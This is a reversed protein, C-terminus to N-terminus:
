CGASYMRTEQALQTTSLAGAQTELMVVGSRIPIGDVIRYAGPPPNGEGHVGSASSTSSTGSATTSTTATDTSTTTTNTATTTAVPTTTSRPTATSVPSQWQVSVGRTALEPLATAVTTGILGSCHLLEGPAFASNTSEYAEGPKAPRGLVISGSGAFQRPIRLGVPCNGPGGGGTVCSGGTLTGIEPGSSPESIEVVTGVASPSAPVLSVTIDLGAARFAADLSSQAAFPNTVTAVIDGSDPGRTPYRFSVPSAHIVPHTGKARPASPTSRSVLAIAVAALACALVAIAPVAVRSRGARRGARALGWGRRAPFSTTAVEGALIAARIAARQAAPFAAGINAADGHRLM